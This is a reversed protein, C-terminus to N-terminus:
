AGGAKEVPLGLETWKLWGGELLMIKTYGRKILQTAVDISDEEHACGCYLVLLKDKPLDRPSPIEAAWPFSVAGQIHGQEYAMAPQNDVVVIDAGGDILAKLEEPKILQLQEATRPAAVAMTPTPVATPSTTPPVPVETPSGPSAPSPTATAAPSPACSTVLVVLQVVFLCLGVLAYRSRTQTFM